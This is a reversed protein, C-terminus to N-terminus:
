RKEQKLKESIKRSMHKTDNRPIVVESTAGDVSIFAM